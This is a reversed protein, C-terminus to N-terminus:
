SVASTAFMGRGVVVHNHQVKRVLESASVTTNNLVRDQVIDDISTHLSHGDDEEDIGNFLGELDTLVACENLVKSSPAIPLFDNETLIELIKWGNEGHFDALRQHPIYLIIDTINYLNAIKIIDDILFYPPNSIIVLNESGGAGDIIKHWNNEQRFDYSLIETYEKRIVTELIKLAPSDIEWVYIKHPDHEEIITTIIGTGGGFELVTKGCLTKGSLGDFSPNVGLTFYQDAFVIGTKNRESLRTEHIVEAGDLAIKKRLENTWAKSHKPM